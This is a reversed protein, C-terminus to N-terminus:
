INNPGSNKTGKNFNIKGELVPEVLDDIKDIVDDVKRVVAEIAEADKDVEEAIKEIRSVVKKLRSNEPLSKELDEAMEDAVEAAKEVADLATIAAKEVQDEIAIIRRYFPIAILFIPGLLWSGWSFINLLSFSPLGTGNNQTNDAVKNEDQQTSQPIQEARALLSQFLRTKASCCIKVDRWPFKVGNSRAVSRSLSLNVKSSYTNSRVLSFSM